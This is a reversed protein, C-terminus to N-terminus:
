NLMKVHDSGHTIMQAKPVRKYAIEGDGDVSGMFNEGPDFHIKGSGNLRVNSSACNLKLADTFGSGDLSLHLSNTKGGFEHSGAGALAIQLVDSRFDLRVTKNDIATLSFNKDDIINESSLSNVHETKLSRMEKYQLTLKGDNTNANPNVTIFLTDKDVRSVINDESVGTVEFSEQNSKKLVVSFHGNIKVHKFPSLM